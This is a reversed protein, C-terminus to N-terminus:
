LAIFGGSALMTTNVGHPFLNGWLLSRPISGPSILRDEGLGLGGIRCM